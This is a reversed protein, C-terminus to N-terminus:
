NGTFTIANGTSLGTKQGILIISGLEGSTTIKGAATTRKIKFSLVQRSIFNGSAGGSKPKSNAGSISPFPIQATSPKFFLDFRFDFLQGTTVTIPLSSPRANYPAASTSPDAQRFGGYRISNSAGSRPNRFCQSRNREIILDYTSGADLVLNSFDVRLKSYSVGTHTSTVVYNADHRSWAFNMGISKLENETVGVNIIDIASFNETRSNPFSTGILRTSESAIGNPYSNIRAM